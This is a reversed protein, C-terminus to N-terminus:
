TAALASSPSGVNSWLVALRMQSTSGGERVSASNLTRKARNTFRCRVCLFSSVPWSVSQKTSLAPEDAPLQGCPRRLSGIIAAKTRTSPLALSVCGYMPESRTLCSLAQFVCRGEGKERRWSAARCGRLVGVRCVAAVSEHRDSMLKSPPHSVRVTLDSAAPLFILPRGECLLTLLSCVMNVSTRVVLSFNGEVAPRSRQRQRM